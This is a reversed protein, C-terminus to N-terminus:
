TYSSNHVRQVFFPKLIALLSNHCQSKLQMGFSTKKRSYTKHEQNRITSVTQKRYKGIEDGPGRPTQPIRSRNNADLRLIM